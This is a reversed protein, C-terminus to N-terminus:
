TSTVRFSRSTAHVHRTREHCAFSATEAARWSRRGARPAQRRACCAGRSVRGDAVYGANDRSEYAAAPKGPKSIILTAVLLGVLAGVVLLEYHIDAIARSVPPPGIVFRGATM